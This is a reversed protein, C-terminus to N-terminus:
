APPADTEGRWFRCAACQCDDAAEPEHLSCSPEHTPAVHGEPGRGCEECTDCSEVDEPWGGIEYNITVLADPATKVELTLGGEDIAVEADDRLGALDKVFARLDGLTIM